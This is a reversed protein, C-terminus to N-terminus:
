VRIFPIGARGLRRNVGLKSAIASILGGAILMLPYKPVSWKETGELDFGTWGMMLVRAGDQYDQNEVIAQYPSDWGARPGAFVSGVLPMVTAMPLTFKRKGMKRNSGGKSARSSIKKTTTKKGKEKDYVSKKIFRYQGSDLVKVHRVGRATSIRKVKM